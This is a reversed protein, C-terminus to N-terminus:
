IINENRTKCTRKVGYGAALALLLFMGGGVPATGGGIPAGGVNSGNSQNDPAPQSYSTVSSLSLALLATITFVRINRKM